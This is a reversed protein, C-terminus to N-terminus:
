CRCRRPTLTVDVNDSHAGKADDMFPAPLTFVTAGKANTVTVTDDDGGAGQTLKLGPGTKVTYTLAGAALAAANPSDLTITEKVGSGQAELAVDTGPLVDAYAVTSGDVEGVVPAVDAADGAASTGTAAAALTRAAGTASAASKAAAPTATSAAAPAAAPNLQLSVWQQANGGDTLTVPATLDKPLTADYGAASNAWGTDAGGGAPGGAKDTAPVLTNDVPQWDGADDRFNVAQPSLETTRTGTAPDVTTTSNATRAAVDEVPEADPAPQAKAAKELAAKGADSLGAYDGNTPKAPKERGSGGAAAASAAASGAAQAATPAAAPAASAPMALAVAVGAAVTAAVGSSLMRSSTRRRPDSTEKEFASGFVHALGDSLNGAASDSSGTLSNNLQKDRGARSGASGRETRSARRMRGGDPTAM